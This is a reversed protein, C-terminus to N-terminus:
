WTNSYLMLSVGDGNGGGSEELSNVSEDVVASRSYQLKFLLVYLRTYDLKCREPNVVRVKQATTSQM